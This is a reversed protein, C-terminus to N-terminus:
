VFRPFFRKSLSVKLVILLSKSLSPLNRLVHDDINDQGCGCAKGTKSLIELIKTEKIKVHNHRKRSIKIKILKLKQSFARLFTAELSVKRHMTMRGKMTTNLKRPLDVVKLSPDCLKKLDSLKIDRFINNEFESQDETLHKPLKQQQQQQPNVTKVSPIKTGTTTKSIRGM